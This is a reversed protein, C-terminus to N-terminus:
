QRNETKLLEIRKPLEVLLNEYYENVRPPNNINRLREWNAQLRRLMAEHHEIKQRITASHM